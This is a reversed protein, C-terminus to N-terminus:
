CLLEKHLADTAFEHGYIWSEVSPKYLFLVKRGVCGGIKRIVRLLIM